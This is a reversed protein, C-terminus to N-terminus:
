QTLVRSHARQVGEIFHQPATSFEESPYGCLLTLSERQCLDHWLFELRVAAEYNRRAWLLAVMEGFARVRRGGRSARELVRFITAEFLRKDPWSNVLFQGLTQDADLLVLQDSAQDLGIAALRRRVSSQHAPTAIVVSGDGARLGSSLFAALTDLFAGESRYIQVLHEPATLEAWVTSPYSDPM